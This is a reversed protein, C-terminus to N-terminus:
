DLNSTRDRYEAYLAVFLFVIAIILLVVWTNSHKWIEFGMYVLTFSFGGWYVMRLLSMM